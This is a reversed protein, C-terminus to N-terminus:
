SPSAPNRRGQRCVEFLREPGVFPGLLPRLEGLALQHLRVEPQHHGDGLLVRVAPELEEVEDLFAVDAEHLGHVLEFPLAAVLEAGVGGPPDALRDGPGDGVLRARDANGTCIISVMFLSMRVDRPRTCSRPRSGVVSSIAAVMFSGTSFTRLIMFIALSGM